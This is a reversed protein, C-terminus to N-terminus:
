VGGLRGLVAVIMRDINEPAVGSIRNQLGLLVIGHVASFLARVMLELDKGALDPFLEAVPRAINAFLTQLETLYWDPLADDRTMDLDFLARWLHTHDSAFERYCRAMVILRQVPSQGETGALAAAVAGGLARFTRGNVAMTLANMDDFVTYIAGLACGAETALDRAKVSGLGQAAIQAEAALILRQRLDERRKTTRDTM